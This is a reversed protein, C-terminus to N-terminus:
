SAEQILYAFNAVDVAEARVLDEEGTELAAALETVEGLMGVFLVYANLPEKHDNERLTLEMAEAFKALEERLETM